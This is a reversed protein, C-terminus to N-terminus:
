EEALITHLALMLTMSALGVVGMLLPVSLAVSGAAGGIVQDPTFSFLWRQLDTWKWNLVAAWGGAVLLYSTIQLVNLPRSVREAMLTSRLLQAKLWVVSADPLSPRRESTRSFRQMFPAVAATAACGACETVHNRLAESWRDEAAARSVLPEQRCSESM